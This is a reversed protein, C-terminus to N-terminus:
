PHTQGHLRNAGSGKAKREARAERALLSNPWWRGAYVIGRDTIFTICSIAIWALGMWKFDVRSKDELNVQELQLAARYATAPCIGFPVPKGAMCTKLWASTVAADSAIDRDSGTFLTLRPRPWLAFEIAVAVIEMGILAIVASFAISRALARPGSWSYSIILIFLTLSLVAGTGGYVGPSLMTTVAVAIVGASLAAVDTHTQPTPQAQVPQDSM